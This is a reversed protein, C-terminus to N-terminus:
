APLSRSFVKRNQKQELYHPGFVGQAVLEYKKRLSETFPTTEQGMEHGWSDKCSSCPHNAAKDLIKPDKTKVFEFIYNKLEDRCEACGGTEGEIKTGSTFGFFSIKNRMEEPLNQLLKVVTRYSPTKYMGRESFWYTLTYRKLNMLGLGVSDSRGGDEAFAWKITKLADDYAEKESLFLPKLLVHAYVEINAAHLTDVAKQYVDPDLMKNISYRSVDPNITELGLGVEIRVENGLIERMERIAEPTIFEARSETALYRTGNEKIVRYIQKRLKPSVEKDDFLSGSPTIVIAPKDKLEVLRKTLSSAAEEETFDTGRGFNCMTCAGAKDFSCGGTEFYILPWDYPKGDYQGPITYMGTPEANQKQGIELKDGSRLKRMVASLFPNAVRFRLDSSMQTEVTSVASENM